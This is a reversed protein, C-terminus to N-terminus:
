CEESNAKARLAKMNKHIDKSQKFAETYRNLQLM